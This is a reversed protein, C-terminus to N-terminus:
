TMLKAASASVSNPTGSKETLAVPPGEPLGTVNPALLLHAIVPFMQLGPAPRCGSRPCFLTCPADSM